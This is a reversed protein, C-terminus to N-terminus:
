STAPEPIANVAAAAALGDTGQPVRYEGWHAISLDSAIAFVAMQGAFHASVFEGMEPGSGFRAEALSHETSAHVPTYAWVSLDGDSDSVITFLVMDPGIRFTGARPHDWVLWADCGAAEPSPCWPAQGRKVITDLNMRGM